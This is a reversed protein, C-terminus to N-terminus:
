IYLYFIESRKCTVASISDGVCSDISASSSRAANTRFSRFITSGILGITGLPTAFSIGFRIFLVRYTRSVNEM